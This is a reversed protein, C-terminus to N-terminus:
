VSLTINQRINNLIRYVQSESYNVSMAIRTINIHEIYRMRYIKDVNNKSNMLEQQKLMLLKKRDELLTKAEALRREIQRKEKLILYEEFPNQQGSSGVKDWKPSKPQTKSFLLEKEKLIEDFKNQTEIYEKRFREYDMYVFM